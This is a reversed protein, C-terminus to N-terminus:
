RGDDPPCRGVKDEANPAGTFFLSTWIDFFCCGALTDGLVTGLMCVTCDLGCVVIAVPVGIITFDCSTRRDGSTTAGAFLFLAVSIEAINSSM